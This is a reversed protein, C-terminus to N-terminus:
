SFLTKIQSEILCGQAKSHDVRSCFEIGMGVVCKLNLGNVTETRLEKNGDVWEKVMGVLDYM